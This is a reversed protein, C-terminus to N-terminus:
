CKVLQDWSYAADRECQMEKDVRKKLNVIKGQCDDMAWVCEGVVDTFRRMKKLVIDISITRCVFPWNEEAVPIM